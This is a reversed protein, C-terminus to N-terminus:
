CLWISIGLESLPSKQLHINTLLVNNNTLRRYEGMRKTIRGSRLSSSLNIMQIRQCRLEGHFNAVFPLM